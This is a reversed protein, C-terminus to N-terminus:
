DTLALGLVIAGSVVFAVVFGVFATRYSALGAVYGVYAPGVSGVGVYVTRMAGFDGAMSADPFTDMLYAQMSPSFARQGVAFVVVGVVTLGLSLASVLLALGIAGGVLGMGAVVLRNRRDSLRGALPRAVLGTAFMAAFVTSAVAPSFGQDAQLLAPLFGIVGESAGAFLSYALVIWLVPRQGVLRGATERTRLSVPSLVVPERGWRYLLVAIVVLGAVAPLFATQWVGLALAGAALGAAAIGGVDSFMGHVGFAVGRREVFLDSLLGRDAAGYLGEGVGLVGASALLFLFTTTTFLLLSGVVLVLLSSLLVTKRTLRDSLRGSPFQLLAFAVAALSLVMGAQFPTISLDTIITPLLPPLVRRGLRAAALGVSLLALM